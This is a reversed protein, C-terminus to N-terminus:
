PLFDKHVRFTAQWANESNGAGIGLANPGGAGPAPYAAAYLGTSSSGPILGGAFSASQMHTYMVEVGLYFTKTVDWQLRSSAGWVSWDNNCGANAFFQGGTFGGQSNTGGGTTATVGEADCLIANSQGNYSVHEYAGVFSEHVAPTWYHEYSANV